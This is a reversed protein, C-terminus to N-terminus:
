FADDLRLYGNEDFDGAVGSRDSDGDSDGGSEPEEAEGEGEELDGQGGPTPDFGDAEDVLEEDEAFAIKDDDEEDTEDDSSSTKSAAVSEGFQRESRDSSASSTGSVGSFVMGAVIIAGAFGLAAKKNEFLIKSM